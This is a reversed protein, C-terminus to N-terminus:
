RGGGGGDHREERVDDAEGEKPEGRANALKANLLAGDEVTRRRNNRGHEASQSSRQLVCRVQVVVVVDEPEITM